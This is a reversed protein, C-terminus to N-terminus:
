LAVGLDHGLDQGPRCRLDVAYKLGQEVDCPVAGLAQSEAGRGLLEHARQEVEHLEVGLDPPDDRHRCGGICGDVVGGRLAEEGGGLPDGGHLVEVPLRGLPHADDGDFRHGLGARM